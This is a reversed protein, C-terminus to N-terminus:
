ERIGIDLVGEMGFFFGQRGPRKGRKRSVQREPKALRTKSKNAGILREM